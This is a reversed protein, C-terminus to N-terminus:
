EDRVFDEPVFYDRCCSAALAFRATGHGINLRFAWFSSPLTPIYLSNSWECQETTKNYGHFAKSFNRARRAGGHLSFSETTVDRIPDRCALWM